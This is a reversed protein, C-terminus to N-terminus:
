IVRGTRKFDQPRQRPSWLSPVSAWVSEATSTLDLQWSQGGLRAEGAWYLLESKPEITAVVRSGRIDGILALTVVPLAYIPRM